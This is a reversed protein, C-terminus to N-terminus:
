IEKWEHSANLMYVVTDKLPVIAISGPAYDTSLDALDSKSDLVIEVYYKGPVPAYYSNVISYAM